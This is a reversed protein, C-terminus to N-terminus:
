KAEYWNAAAAVAATLPVSLQVVGEMIRAMWDAVAAAQGAPAEALLEDHVQLVLPSDPFRHRGERHLTIMAKKIIDAATGQLPANVAMREANARVNFDKAKLEPLPRARGFLTSVRLTGRAEELIGDLYGKVRPFQRFYAEMFQKAEGVPVELAESLGFASMGYIIGFNITKASRRQRPTVEGEPVQYISAATRTHIDRGQEFAAKLVPDGSFHALLRLEIQSYDGVALLRGPPAAFAKRVEAGLDTRIPINQLNPNASSLRGTATGTQRFTTHLRGAADTLAPLPDLYTGKLKALERFRLILGPLEHGQSALAKLADENTSHEKTKTTKKGSPVLKLEGYLVERLQKPSQLNVGHGVVEHARQQIQLMENGAERSLANLVAPDLFVGAAEMATLVPTLPEEIENLIATQGTAELREELAAWLHPLARVQEVPDDSVSQGLVAAGVYDLPYDGRGPDLLWAALETDKFRLAEPKGADLLRRYLGKAAHAIIPRDSPLTALEGPALERVGGEDLFILRDGADILSPLPSPEREARVEPRATEEKLLSFFEM